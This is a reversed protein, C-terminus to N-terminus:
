AIKQIKFCTGEQYVISTQTNTGSAFQVQFNGSTGATTITGVFNVNGGNAGIAAVTNYAGGSLTGSTTLNDMRQVTNSSTVGQVFMTQVSSAPTTIAFKVGGAGNCGIHISGHIEYKSNTSLPFVLDTINSAVNSTTSQDGTTIKVISEFKTDPVSLQYNTGDYVVEYAKGSIIDGSILASIFNKISKAGLSNRNLTSSGTNANTFIITFSENITYAAPYPASFTYTDTGSATYQVINNKLNDATDVYATTAIKTSNDSASATPATPTGTLAPSALNAKLALDTDDSITGNRDQFTYTRAATNSNTFFSTFTNLANKFNIKFLTLGAYGGSADKNAVNEATYGLSAQKSDLQTQISSTADNRSQQNDTQYRKNTSDAIDATTADAGSTVLGKTDYTIKTKTAGTISGNATVKLALATDVYTKAAKQSPYLTDSNAAFTGDTSKNAVNEPTFGLASQKTDAYTKTAKQSPYLTDSNAAMTGDTSKNAVNEPTFGLANQKSNFTVWDVALLYGDQTASAPVALVSIGNTANVLLEIDHEINVLDSFTPIGNPARRQFYSSRIENEPILAM